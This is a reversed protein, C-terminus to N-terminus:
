SLKTANWDNDLRKGPVLWRFESHQLCDDSAPLQKSHPIGTYGATLSKASGLLSKTTQTEEGAFRLRSSVMQNGAGKAVVYLVNKGDRMGDSSSLTGMM